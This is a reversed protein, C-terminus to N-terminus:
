RSYPPHRSRTRENKYSALIATGGPTTRSGTPSTLICFLIQFFSLCVELDFEEPGALPMLLDPLVTIGPAEITSPPITVKVTDPSLIARHAQIQFACNRYM